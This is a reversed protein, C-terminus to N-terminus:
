NDVRRLARACVVTKWGIHLSYKPHLLYVEPRDELPLAVQWESPLNADAFKNPASVSNGYATVKHAGKARWTGKEFTPLALKNVRKPLLLTVAPAPQMLGGLPSPVQPEM